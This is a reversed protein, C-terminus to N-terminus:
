STPKNIAAVQKGCPGRNSEDRPQIRQAIPGADSFEFQVVYFHLPPFTAPPFTALISNSPRTEGVLSSFEPFHCWFDQINIVKQLQTM